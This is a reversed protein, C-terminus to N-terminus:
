LVPSPGSKVAEWDMVSDDTEPNFIKQIAQKLYQVDAAGHNECQILIQELIPFMPQAYEIVTPTQKEVSGKPKYGGTHIGILKCNEDFVPSGSSGGFFCSHYIIQCYCKEYDKALCQDKIFNLKQLIPNDAYYKEVAVLPIDKKAIIFCPDMQKVEGKPHGIVCVGGEPPPTSYRRLLEPLGVPLEVDTSLELLAFDLNNGMNGTGHFLAVYNEKVPIALSNETFREEYGFVATVKQNLKRQFTDYEGVVHANTLVFRKFLLFGTGLLRETYIQCVSDSLEMLQKVRKVESFSQVSKSFEVRLFEKVEENNKLSSREKLTKLLDSHQKRLLNLIEQPNPIVKTELCKRSKKEEHRMETEKQKRKRQQNDASTSEQNPNEQLTETDESQEQKVTEAEQSMEQSSDQSDKRHPAVIIQFLKGDLHDVLTSFNAKESTEENTFAGKSFIVNHFRGDRMLASKVKEGKEAYVCVYDVNKKNLESNKMVVRINKDGRTKIYFCLLKKPSLPTLKQTNVTGSNGDSRIFSIDLRENENLLSCPFHPAVAARPMEERRIIVEKNPEKKCIARFSSDKQLREQVTMPANCTLTYTECKYIFRLTHGHSETKTQTSETDLGSKEGEKKCSHSM